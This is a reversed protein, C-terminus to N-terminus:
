SEVIPCVVGFEALKQLVKAASEEITELDMDSDLLEVARGAM